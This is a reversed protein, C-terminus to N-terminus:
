SVFNDHVQKQIITLGQIFKNEMWYKDLEIILMTTNQHSIYTLNKFRNGNNDESNQIMVELLKKVM